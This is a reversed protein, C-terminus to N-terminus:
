KMYFHFSIGDRLSLCLSCKLINTNKWIKRSMCKLITVKKIPNYKIYEKAVQKKESLM